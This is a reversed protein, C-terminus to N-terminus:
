KFDCHKHPNLRILEQAVDHNDRNIHWIVEKTKAIRSYRFKIYIVGKTKHSAISEIAWPNVLLWSMFLRKSMNRLYILDNRDVQEALHLYILSHVSTHEEDFLRLVTLDEPSTPLELDNINM